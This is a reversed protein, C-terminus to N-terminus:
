KQRQRQMMNAFINENSTLTYGAPIQFMSAPFTKRNATILLMEMSFAKAQIEVKVFTGGCGAQDLAQMMKPTANQNTMMKEITAYGPVDTSSWIDETTGPKQGGSIITMKSHICHYGSITENGVKTVQYTMGGGSNIAATDIINFIYTKSEPYLVISYRPLGAHGLVQMRMALMGLDSHINHGDTIATSLTDSSTSDKNNKGKFTYIVHYQLLLGSGGTATMFSKIAAASDAPSISPKPKNTKALLQTLYTSDYSSKSQASSDQKGTTQASKGAAKNTVNQKMNNVLTKLFQARSTMTHIAALIAIVM